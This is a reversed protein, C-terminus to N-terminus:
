PHFEPLGLPVSPPPCCEIITGPRLKGVEKSRAKAEQVGGGGSSATVTALVLALAVAGVILGTMLMRSDKQKKGKQQQIKTKNMAISYLVM